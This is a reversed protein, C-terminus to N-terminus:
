STIISQYFYVFEYSIHFGIVDLNLNTFRESSTLRTHAVGLSSVESTPQAVTHKLISNVIILKRTVIKAHWEFGDM